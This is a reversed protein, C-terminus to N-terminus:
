LRTAAVADFVGKLHRDRRAIPLAHPREPVRALTLRTRQVEAGVHARHPLHVRLARAQLLHGVLCPDDDRFREDFKGTRPVLHRFGAAADYPFPLVLQARESKPSAGARPWFPRSLLPHAPDSLCADATSCSTTLM